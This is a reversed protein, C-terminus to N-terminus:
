SWVFIDDVNASLGVAIKSWVSRLHGPRLDVLQLLLIDVFSQQFFILKRAEAQKIHSQRHDMGEVCQNEAAACCAQHAGNLRALAATADRYEFTCVLQSLLNEDRATPAAIEGVEVAPRLIKEGAIRMKGLRQKGAVRRLIENRQHLLM